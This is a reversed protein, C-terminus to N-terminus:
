VKLRVNKDYKVNLYIAVTFYRHQYKCHIEAETIQSHGNNNKHSDVCFPQM